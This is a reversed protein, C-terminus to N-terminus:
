HATGGPAVTAKVTKLLIMVDGLMTWNDVYSLDLRVSEEWSLSSRGSVQWLGTIGPKALFRRHVHAAYQAVESPLPPRPGVLSMSGSIVNFLQPLEDLSFKRMVRGIPTIRPDNKMKFMVQNGADIPGTDRQAALQPLLEEADQVMSRFKLMQFERGGRGIRTQRFLVPGPSTRAVLLALLALVPSLVIVGLTTAVLDLARKAFAQGKSFRPTEVHILPLGAVPRMHLRPGAIDVMSPALVLHQRGAELGWSIQKVRDPPLEDTSTIAVTDAGTLALAREVANLPGIIPLDTGDITEYRQGAPVCAGIVRYGAGPTRALEKAIQAVSTRSGVLLVRASYRGSRRNALLWKRWIWREAVLLLVGAPLSIVLFGRAVDIRLLFALIAIAGFLRLSAGVIRGYETSGTGIVRESRSDALSLVWMWAGVLALSFLWYSFESLRSDERIAVEANGTGFWIMQAGFVVVVLVLLDTGILWRSYRRRWRTATPVVLPAIPEVRSAMAPVAPEPEDLAGWNAHGQPGSLSERTPV